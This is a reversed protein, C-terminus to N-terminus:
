ISKPQVRSAESSARGSGGPRCNNKSRGSGSAYGNSFRRPRVADRIEWREIGIDRLLHDDMRELEAIDRATNRRSEVIQLLLILTRRLRAWGGPKEKRQSAPLGDLDHRFKYSYTDM